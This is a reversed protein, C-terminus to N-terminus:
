WVFVSFIIFPTTALESLVQLFELRFTAQKQAYRGEIDLCLLYYVAEKWIEKVRYGAAKRILMM